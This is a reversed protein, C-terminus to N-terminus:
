RFYSPLFCIIIIIIFLLESLSIFTSLRATTTAKEIYVSIILSSQKTNQEM